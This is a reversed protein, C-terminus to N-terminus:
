TIATEAIPTDIVREEGFKDQLGKTVGGVGGPGIDEGLLIVTGDEGMEESLAENIATRYNIRRM